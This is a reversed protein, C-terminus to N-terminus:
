EEDSSDDRFGEELERSLRRESSGDHGGENRRGRQISLSLAERRGRLREREEDFSNMEEDDGLDAGSEEDVLPSSGDVVRRNITGVAGVVKDSLWDKFREPMLQGILNGVNALRSWPSSSNFSSSSSSSAGVPLYQNYRNRYRRWRQFLPVLVFSTLVYIAAALLAPLLLTKVVSSVASM